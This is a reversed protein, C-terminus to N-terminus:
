REPSSEVAEIAQPTELREMRLVPEGARDERLGWAELSLGEEGRAKNAGAVCTLNAWLGAGWKPNRIESQPNFPLGGNRQRSINM